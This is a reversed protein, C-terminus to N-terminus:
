NELSLERSLPHREKVYVALDHMHTNSDKWFLPLFVRVSFNGSDVSDGFNTECLALIDPSSPELFRESEVFNFHLGHNNTFSLKLSNHPEFNDPIYGKSLIAM